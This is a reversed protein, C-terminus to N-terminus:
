LSIGLRNALTLLQARPGAVQGQQYHLAARKFEGQKQYFRGAEYHKRAVAEIEINEDILDDEKLATLANFVYQLHNELDSSMGGQVRYFTTAKHVFRFPIGAFLLRVWLHLDEAGHLDRRESFPHKLATERDLIVASPVLPNSHTLLEKIERVPRTSRRTKKTGYFNIVEHYIVKPSGEADIVKVIDALKHKDWLDDADLFAIWHGKAVEVGRNRSAGLGQNEQNLLIIHLSSREKWNDIISESEDTSGDNVVIVEFDRFTQNEVSKLTEELTIAANYVPIIVSFQPM